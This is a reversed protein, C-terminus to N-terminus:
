RDQETTAPWVYPLDPKERWKFQGYHDPNKRLLNSRHSAHFKDDGLWSPSRWTGRPPTMRDALTDRYGRRLWEACIELGYLCLLDECGAWMRVAPHRAWGGGKTLAGLIQVVELRQKGLRQRDLCRASAEFSPYPLFTQM